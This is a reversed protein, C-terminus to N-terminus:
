VTYFVQVADANAVLAGGSGNRIDLSIQVGAPYTEDADIFDRQQAMVGGDVDMIPNGTRMLVTRVLKTQNTSLLGYVHRERRDDPTSIFTEGLNAGAAVAPIVFRVAKKEAM